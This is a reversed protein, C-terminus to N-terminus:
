PITPAPKDFLPALIADSLYKGVTQDTMGPTDPTWSPDVWSKLDEVTLTPIQAPIDSVKLGQGELVKMAVRMAADAGSASPLANAGGRFGKDRNALWYALYGKDPDGNVVAPVPVGAAQFAQIAAMAMGSSDWVGDIKQGQHTELYQLTMSKATAPDWRAELTQVVKVTPCNDFVSHAGKEFLANDPNGPLGSVMLVNGKDGMDAVLEEAKTGGYQVANGGVNIANITEAPSDQTVVVIGAKFAQDIVADLASASNPELIIADYGQQIATRMQQIQVPVSADAHVQTFQSILGAAKMPNATKDFQAIQITHWDNGVFNGIHIVKWPAPHKPKFNEYPSKKIPITYDLYGALTAKPLTALVGTSDQPLKGPMQGCPYGLPGNAAAAAGAPALTLAALVAFAFRPRQSRGTRELEAKMAQEERQL